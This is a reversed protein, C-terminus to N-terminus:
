AVLSSFITSAIRRILSANPLSLYDFLFLLLHILFRQREVLVYSMYHQEVQQFQLIQM